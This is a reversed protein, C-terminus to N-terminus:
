VDSVKQSYPPKNCYVHCFRHYTSTTVLGAFISWTPVNSYKLFVMKFYEIHRVTIAYSKCSFCLLAIAVLLCDYLYRSNSKSTELTKELHQVFCHSWNHALSATLPEWVVRCTLAPQRIVTMSSQTCSWVMVVKNFGVLCQWLRKLAICPWSFAM